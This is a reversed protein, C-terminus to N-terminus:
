NSPSPPFPFLPFAPLLAGVKERKERKPDRWEKADEREKAGEEATLPFFHVVPYPVILLNSEILRIAYSIGKTHTHTERANTERTPTQLPTRVKGKVFGDPSRSLVLNSLDGRCFTSPFDNKNAGAYVVCASIRSLTARVANKTWNTIANASNTARVYKLTCKRRPLVLRHDLFRYRRLVGRKQHPM